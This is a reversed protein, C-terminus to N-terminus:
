NETSSDPMTGYNQGIATEAEASSLSEALLAVSLVLSLVCILLSVSLWLIVKKLRFVQEEPSPMRRRPTSKKVVAPATNLPLLVKTEPKVPFKAMVSLCDECFVEKEAIKKGCKLCYM